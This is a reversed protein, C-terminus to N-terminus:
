QIPRYIEISKKLNRLSSAVDSTNLVSCSFVQWLHAKM